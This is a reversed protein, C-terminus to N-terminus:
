RTKSDPGHIGFDLMALVFCMWQIGEAHDSRKRCSFADLTKLATRWAFM